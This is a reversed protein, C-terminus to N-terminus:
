NLNIPDADMDIESGTKTNKGTVIEDKKGTIIESANGLVSVNFDKGVQMNLDRSANINIDGVDPSLTTLNINGKNVEINVNAGSGVEINYNNGDTGSSNVRVRLGKDTTQRGTGQIHTYDDGTVITYNDKKVRTVKSGNPHIEYGSGSSHREHIREKTPTDDMERIHGGESEYVHNYPYTADYPTTPEDWYGGQTTQGAPGTSGGDLDTPIQAVGTYIGDIQATGVALDRDAKRITLSSHPNNEDGVALRNVDTEDKYKPYNANVEDQFGKKNDKTPLESPIGPLTGIIIPMQADAGDQFFGVVWSGEVAGLPSQGLGSVTASTIPNMVHAWPLDKTELKDLNETHYGLCRVRLRGLSKPDARDEVVGVFWIFGNKGMFESM